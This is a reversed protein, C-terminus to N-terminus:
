KLKKITNQMIARQEMTYGSSSNLPNPRIEPRNLNEFVLPSKHKNATLGIKNLHKNIHNPMLYIIANAGNQLLIRTKSTNIWSSNTNEDIFLQM